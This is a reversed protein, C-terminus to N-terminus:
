QEERWKTDLSLLYWTNKGGYKFPRARATFDAPRYDEDESSYLEGRMTVINGKRSVEQVDAYYVPDGDAHSFHYDKGDYYADDTSTHELDINFYKKVTEAVFKKSILLSGHKSNQRVRIRSNYNNVANHWTGFFVLEEPSISDRNINYMRLETFNSIFTGMRALEAESAGFASSCLLATFLLAFVLRKM